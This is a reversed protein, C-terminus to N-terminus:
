LKMIDWGTVHGWWLLLIIGSPKFLFQVPLQFSPGATLLMHKTGLVVINLWLKLPDLARRLGGCASCVCPVSVCLCFVWVYVFLFCSMSVFTKYNDAIGSQLGSHEEMHIWFGLVALIQRKMTWKCRAWRTGYKRCTEWTKEACLARGEVHGEDAETPVTCTCCPSPRPVHAPYEGLWLYTRFAM